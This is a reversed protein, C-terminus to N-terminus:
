GFGMGRRPGRVMETLPFGAAGLLPRRMFDGGLIDDFVGPAWALGLTGSFHSRPSM